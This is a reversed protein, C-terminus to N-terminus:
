LFMKTASKLKEQIQNITLLFFSMLSRNCGTRSQDQHSDDDTEASGENENVARRLTPNTGFHSGERHWAPELHKNVSM